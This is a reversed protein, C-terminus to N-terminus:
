QQSLFAVLSCSIFQNWTYSSSIMHLQTGFSWSTKYIEPSGLKTSIYMISCGYPRDTQATIDSSETRCALIVHYWCALIVYYWCALIVHHWCVVLTLNHWCFLIMHDHWCFLTMHYLCVLTMDHWCTLTVHHWGLYCILVIMYHSYKVIMHHHWGVLNNPYCYSMTVHHIRFRFWTYVM